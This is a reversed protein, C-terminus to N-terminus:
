GTYAGTSSTTYGNEDVGTNGYYQNASSFPNASSLMNNGQQQNNGCWSNAGATAGSIANGIAKGQGMYGAAQAAGGALQASGINGGFTRANEGSQQLSTQGLGAISSLRNFINTHNAGVNNFENQHNQFGQNYNQNQMNFANTFANQYGNQAYNQAYDNIGKLANGGVLGGGVSAQNNIAGLGQDRMFAYNPALQDNLDKNSFSFPNSHYAPDVNNNFQGNQTGAGIQGLATQGAARWPAQQDNTTNFMNLQTQQAARASDAQTNAAERSANSSFLGGVVSGTIIFAM